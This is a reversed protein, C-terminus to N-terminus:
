PHKLNNESTQLLATTFLNVLWPLRGGETLAMKLKM